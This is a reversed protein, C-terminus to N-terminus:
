YRRAGSTSLLVRSAKKGKKGMENGKNSEVPKARSIVNAFSSAGGMPLGTHYIIYCEVKLFVDLPISHTMLM